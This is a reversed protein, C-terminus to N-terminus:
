GAAGTPGTAGITGAPGTPGTAGATGSGGAARCLSIWSTTPVRYFCYCMSDTNYILLSNAPAAIALMGATNMRPILLGKNTSLMELIASADPTNTGIGVNDQAVSRQPNLLLFISLFFASSVIAKFTLKM